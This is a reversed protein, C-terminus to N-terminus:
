TVTSITQSGGDDSLEWHKIRRSSHPLVKVKIMWLGVLQKLRFEGITEFLSLIRLNFFTSIGTDLVYMAGTQAGHNSGYRSPVSVLPPTLLSGLIALFALFECM